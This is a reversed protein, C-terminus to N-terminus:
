QVLYTFTFSMTVSSTSGASYFFSAVNNTSDAYIRVTSVDWNGVGGLHYFQTFDSAIPLSLSFGVAGTATPDIDIQGAVTIVNGVRMYQTARATSAQVNSTASVTPTYTGSSLTQSTNTPPSGNNHINSFTLNGSSDIRVRETGGTAIGVIDSGVAGIGTYIDSASANSTFRLAGNLSLKATGVPSVGIGVNGSSDIRMRESGGVGFATYNNAHTDNNNFVWAGGNLKGIDASTTGSNAINRVIQRWVVGGGNTSNTFDFFSNAAANLQVDLRATSAPTKGIGLNGASSIRMAETSNIDWTLGGNAISSMQSVVGSTGVDTFSIRGGYNGSGSKTKIDLTGVGSSSTELRALTSGGTNGVHLKVSPSLGVGLNGANTMRAIETAGNNGAQFIIDSNTTGVGSTSRLTLTSTTGTGGIFLPGTASTGITPTNITPSNITPSTLTKSTLTQTEGTTVLTGSRGSLLLLETPTVASSSINKNADSILASSATLGSVRVNGTVHLAELPSSTGVGVKGAGAPRLLLDGDTNTTSITNGNLQINDVNLKDLYGSAVAITSILLVILALLKQNNM